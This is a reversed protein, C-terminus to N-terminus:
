SLESFSITQPSPSSPQPQARMPLHASFGSAPDQLGGSIDLGGEPGDHAVYVGGADAMSAKLEDLTLMKTGHPSM